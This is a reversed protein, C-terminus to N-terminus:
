VCHRDVRVSLLNQPSRTSMPRHEAAAKASTSNTAFLKWRLLPRNGTIVFVDNDRVARYTAAPRRNRGARCGRYSMRPTPSTAILLDVKESVSPDRTAAASRLGLLRKASYALPAM